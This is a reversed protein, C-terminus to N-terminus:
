RKIGEAQDLMRDEFRKLRRDMMDIQASHTITTDYARALMGVKGEAWKEHDIRWKEWGEIGMRIEDMAGLVKATTGM